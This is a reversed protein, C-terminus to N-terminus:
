VLCEGKPPPCDGEVNNDNINSTVVNQVETENMFTSAKVEETMDFHKTNLACNNQM